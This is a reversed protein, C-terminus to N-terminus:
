QGTLHLRNLLILLSSVAAGTSPLKGGKGSDKNRSITVQIIKEM